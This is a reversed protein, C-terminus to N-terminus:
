IIDYVEKLYYKTGRKKGNTKLINEDVLTNVYRSAQSYSINIAKSFQEKDFEYIQFIYKSIDVYKPDKIIMKLREMTNNLIEFLTDFYRSTELARRFIITLFKNIWGEIYTNNHFLNSNAYYEFETRLSDVHLLFHIDFINKKYMYAEALLAAMTENYKKFPSIRIFDYYLMAAKVFTNDHSRTDNHYKVYEELERDIDDCKVYDKRLIFCGDQYVDYNERFSDDSYEYEKILKRYVEKIWDINIHMRRINSTIFKETRIFNKDESYIDKGYEDIKSYPVPVSYGVKSEINGCMRGVFLQALELGEAITNWNFESILKKQNM